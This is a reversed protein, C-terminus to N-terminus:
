LALKSATDLQEIAAKDLNLKTAAVLEHVQNATTASAIPATVSPRAIQWALAVSGPSVDYRRGVDDLAALIRFGRANLYQDIVGKGRTSKAADAPARYKGTLFGSALAFYNVVGVQHELCLPELSSEYDSRNYLNYHPQLAEYRPLENKRSVEFSETLRAATFNSAGIARVKGQAILKQYAGLTEEMPVSADDYHSFYLDIYDTQLRRLSEEASRAIHAASLGKRDPALESGVKTAVVVTQRKACRKLWNGIITESEGGRHGPVWRSYSDATDIFNLGADVYADLVAFSAAEDATWGFVNGGLCLPSVRLSSRGLTRLPM